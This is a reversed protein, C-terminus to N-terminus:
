IPAPQEEMDAEDGKALREAANRGFFWFMGPRILFECFTSSILGGVIVTAVPFLMEKGPQSGGIVLPLLGIGTTLATMLVPALRELSGHVIMEQTFGEERYQELYTSVLLLGNRAAIGGLSIFGVMAAISLTQQTVVLAIVGGIFAAPLSFLIQWVISAAPYASYLVAFTVILAIVSLGLIRTSASQQAEFQGGMTFFYGEPMEVRSRIRQEIEEVATGLDKDLTNVKVVIRRRGDERQITNPGGAEYINALVALPVHRGDKLELPFRHLNELDTRYEDDLRVVVDFSQQGQIMQTVVRGNLATEITRNVDAAPVGYYALAERKLEVRYQPIISQQEVVPPAIGDLDEIAGKVQNALSRLQTLDDGYVKIAIQSTVGSLMHSIMHAIPQEIEIAVGPIEDTAEHLLAILEDRGQPADPHVSIVTETVHVGMAHEDLEARGTKSTYWQLPGDPNEPSRTLKALERDVM